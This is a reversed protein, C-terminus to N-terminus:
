IYVILFFVNKVVMLERGRERERESESQRKEGRERSKSERERERRRGPTESRRQREGRPNERYIADGYIDSITYEKKEWSLSLGKKGGWSLCLCRGHRYWHRGPGSM